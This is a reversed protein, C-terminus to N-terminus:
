CRHLFCWFRICLKSFILEFPGNKAVKALLPYKRPYIGEQPAFLFKRACLVSALDNSCHYRVDTFFDDFDSARKRLYLSLFGNKLWFPPWFVGQPCVLIKKWFDVQFMKKTEGLHLKTGLKLFIQHASRWIDRRARVSACVGSRSDMPGKALASLGFLLCKRPYIGGPPAFSFKRACLVSALDNLAIIDVM